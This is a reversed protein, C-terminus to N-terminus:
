VVRRRPKTLSGILGTLNSVLSIAALFVLITAFHLVPWMGIVWLLSAILLIATAYKIYDQHSQFWMANKRQLFFSSYIWM